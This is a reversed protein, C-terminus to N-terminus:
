GTLLALEGFLQHPEVLYSDDSTGDQREMYPKEGFPEVVTHTAPPLSSRREQGSCIDVRVTGSILFYMPSHLDEHHFINEGEDFVDKKMKAALACLEQMELKSLMPVSKLKSALRAYFVHRRQGVYQKLSSAHRAFGGADNLVKNLGAFVSGGFLAMGMAVYVLAKGPGGEDSSEDAMHVIHAFLEISLAEILAGSGYAMLMARIEKKPNRLVGILAGIVLSIASLVGWAAAQVALVANEGM